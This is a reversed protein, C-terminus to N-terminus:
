PTPEFYEGVVAKVFWLVREAAERGKVMADRMEGRTFEGEAETWVLEGEGEQGKVSAIGAGFAWGFGFRARASSEEELTPDVLYEGEATLAVAIAIPMARLGVSGAHLIALSTANVAAARASFGGGAMPSGKGEEREELAEMYEDEDEVKPAPWGNRTSVAGFPSSSPYQAPAPSMDQVVVQCLSRPFERLNLLPSFSSTLSAEAARSSVGGVGSLPRHTIEM